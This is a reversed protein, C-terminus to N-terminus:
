DCRVRSFPYRSNTVDTLTRKDESLAFRRVDRRTQGEGTAEIEIEVELPSTVVTSLVRGRSAYFDIRDDQITLSAEHPVGCRAQSGAWKGQFEAPVKQDQAVAVLATGVLLIGAVFQHRM